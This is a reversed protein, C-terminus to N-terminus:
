CILKKLHMVMNKKFSQTLDKWLLDKLYKGHALEM